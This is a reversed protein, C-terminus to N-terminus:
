RLFAILEREGQRLGDTAPLAEIDFVTTEALCHCQEIARQLAPGRVKKSVKKGGKSAYKLYITEGDFSVHRSELTTAGHSNNERTYIPSGVRLSGRDM